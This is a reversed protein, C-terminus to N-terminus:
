LQWQTNVGRIKSVFILPFCFEQLLLISFNREGGAVVEWRENGDRGKKGSVFIFNKKGVVM